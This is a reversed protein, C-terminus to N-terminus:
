PGTARDTATALMREVVAGLSEAGTFPRKEGTKIREVVGRLRGQRDRSVRVVFAADPRLQDASM